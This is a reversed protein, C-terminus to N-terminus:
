YEVKGGEYAAAPIRVAAVFGDEGYRREITGGMEGAIVRQILKSGFGDRRPAPVAGMGHEVWSFSLDRGAEVRWRVEVTGGPRSLAGHRAANTTLEHLVLSLAIAAKSGVVVYPGGIDARERGHPDLERRVLAGLEADEWRREALIGHAAALAQIRAEFAARAAAVDPTSRFTQAAISQVTALANKVRHNLEDLLLRQRRAFRVQETQDTGQVFIGSVRGDSDRIPSYSFDLFLESEPEGAANHLLVRAGHAHHP